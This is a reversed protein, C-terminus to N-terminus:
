SNVREKMALMEDRLRAAEMFDMDRAAKDMKKKTHEIAVTLQEKSLYQLIPDAAIGAEHEEESYYKKRQDIMGSQEFITTMGKKM